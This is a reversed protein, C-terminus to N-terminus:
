PLYNLCQVTTEDLWVAHMGPCNWVEAALRKLESPSASPEQAEASSCGTLTLCILVMLLAAIWLSPRNLLDLRRPQPTLHPDFPFAQAMSRPYEADPDPNVDAPFPIRTTM